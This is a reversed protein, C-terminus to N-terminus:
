EHTAKLGLSLSEPPSSGLQEKDLKALLWERFSVIKGENGRDEKWVLYYGSQSPIEVKFPAVLQGEDIHSQVFELNAIAIGLGAGAAELALPTTHFKPGRESDVGEVGAVRMWNRWQGIRHLSHLLTCNSVDSPQTLPGHERLYATSCVPVLHESMLRISALDAPVNDARYSIALDIDSNTFDTFSIATSMRIELEPHDAQFETMRPVLWGTAFTPAVSINLLNAPPRHSLRHSAANVQDLAQTVSRLFDLASPLLEVTRGTRKFLPQSFYEELVKVQHSIAAPTVHLEEAAKVFSLHRAAAEFARLANLPYILRTM